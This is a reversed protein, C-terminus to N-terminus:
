DIIPSANCGGAIDYNVAVRFTDLSAIRLGDIWSDVYYLYFGEYHGPIARGGEDRDPSIFSWVADPIISDSAAYVREAFITDQNVAHGVTLSDVGPCDLRVIQIRDDDSYDIIEAQIMGTYAGLAFCALIVFTIKM